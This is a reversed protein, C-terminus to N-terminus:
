QEQRSDFIKHIGFTSFIRYQNCEVFILPVIDHSPPQSLFMSHYIRGFSITAFGEEQKFIAPRLAVTRLTVCGIIYFSTRWVGSKGIVWSRRGRVTAYQVFDRPVDRQSPQPIGITACGNRFSLLKHDMKRPETLRAITTRGNAYRLRWLAIHWHILLQTM